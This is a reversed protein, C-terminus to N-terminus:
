RTHAAPQDKVPPDNCAGGSICSVNAVYRYGTEVVLAQAACAPAELCDCRARASDGPGASVAEGTVRALLERGGRRGVVRDRARCDFARGGGDTACNGTRTGEDVEVDGGDAPTEALYAGVVDREHAICHRSVAVKAEDCFSPNHGGPEAAVPGEDTCCREDM